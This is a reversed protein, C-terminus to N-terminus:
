NDINWLKITDGQDGKSILCEGYLPHYIKKITLLDGNHGTLSKVIKDNKLNILKITRDNCGVFLYDNNWLCICCLRIKNNIDIIIKKLLEGSHFNWVRIEYDGSEMLKTVEETNIVLICCHYQYKNDSYKHYEKNNFYDYSKIYNQNGTLVYNKSFKNDYYTDIFFTREISDNLTKIKKGKLNYVKVPGPKEPYNDNSAIIYLENNDKLFCASYLEGNKYINKFDYLFEWNNINWLKINNDWSSISIILDRQNRKDLYHRFNNIYFDHANKIENIKKNDILNYSIISQFENSYILYFINNISKFIIFVNDLGTDNVFSDKILDYFFEINEPNNKSENKIYNQNENLKMEDEKNNLNTKFITKIRKKKKNLIKIYKSNNNNKKDFSKGNKESIEM